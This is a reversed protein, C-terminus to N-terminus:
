SRQVQKGFCDQQFGIGKKGCSREIYYNNDYLYPDHIKVNIPQMIGSINGLNDSTNNLSNQKNMFKTASNRYYESSDSIEIRATCGMRTLKSVTEKGLKIDISHIITQPLNDIINKAESLKKEPISMERIFRITALQNKGADELIVNVAQNPRNASEIIVSIPCGCNPCKDAHTSVDHGCEVCKIIAM